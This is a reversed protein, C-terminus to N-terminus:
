ELDALCPFDDESPTEGDPWLPDLNADTPYHLNGDEDWGWGAEELFKRGMEPSGTPDDAQPELISEDDPFFPHNQSIYTGYMEPEVEGGFAIAIMKKRDQVANVARRFPTFKSPAIHSVPQLIYTTHAGAFAAEADDVEDNIRQANPPSTEPIVDAEGSSLAQIASEENRYANFVIGQSPEFIPHNDRPEVVVRQGQSFDTVEFPGSTVLPLEFDPDAPDEVAGAEEFSDKHVIGWRMLTTRAFPLYPESFSFRVTKEDVIEIGEAPGGGEYPVPAAGPYAGADGGRDIQEFTFKVDEATVPDGNTFEADDFLEVTVEEASTEVEGLLGRLDFNHDYKHVPSNIMHQWMAEPMSAHHTMYNLTETAITDIGVVMKGDEKYESMMVWEANSRVIGGNGVGQMDVSDTRWAGINAVPCLDGFIGESSAYSLLDNMASFREEETEAKTQELLLDTYQCDAYNWYNSNGNAGAWDIRLNNMLEQPDLRDMAPVWWAFTIDVERNEDNALQGLQTSIDVPVIEVTVGLHEEISNRIVPLMQEQTTTFGGYDSWYEIQITPVREGLEDESIDQGDGEGDNEGGCGALGAISTAGIAQLMRRREITKEQGKTDTDM